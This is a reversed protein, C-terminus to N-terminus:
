GRIVSLRERKSVLLLLCRSRKEKFRHLMSHYIALSTFLLNHQDMLKDSTRKFKIDSKIDKSM